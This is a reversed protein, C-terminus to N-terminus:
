AQFAAAAAAQELFRSRQWLLVVLVAMIMLASFIMMFRFYSDWAFPNGRAFAPNQSYMKEFAARMVQHLNKSFAAILCNLVGVCQLVIETYLAWPKLKFIGVGAAGSVLGFLLYVYRQAAGGFAHGFFYFPINSPFPIFVFLLLFVAGFVLLGAVIALPLPCTPRIQLPVPSAHPLQPFGSADMAAAFPLPSTFATTVRKRTFLVLWWIGVCAPTGYFIVMFIKVFRMVQGGDVGNANPLGLGAGANFIVLSFAVVALGFFAMMGGWILMTIRAWNRRRMVGVGVFVGFGALVLFFLLFVASFTRVEPPMPPAGQAAPLHPMLLVGLGGLLCGFAVFLSLIIAVIGAATVSPLSENRTLTNM